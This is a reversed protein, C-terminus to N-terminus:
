EPPPLYARPEYIRSLRHKLFIFALLEIGLVAGNTVLATLFTQLDTNQAKAPVVQSMREQSARARLLHLTQPTDRNDFSRQHQSRAYSLTPPLLPDSDLGSDYKEGAKLKPTDNNERYSPPSCEVALSSHHSPPAPELDARDGCTVLEHPTVATVCGDRRRGSVVVVHSSRQM